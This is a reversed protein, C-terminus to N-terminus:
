FHLLFVDSIQESVIYILHKMLICSRYIHSLDKQLVCYITFTSARKGEIAWLLIVKM